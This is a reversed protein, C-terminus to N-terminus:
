NVFTTQGKFTDDNLKNVELNDTCEELLQQITKNNLPHIIQNAIESLPLLAFRRETLYPHPLTLLLTNSVLNDILLIDIDIIRPGYKIERKRGIREEIELLIQMLQQPETNTKLVIVQNYFSPQNTFGWAATEYINSHNIIKGCNKSILQQAQNLYSFRHGLNSGLLLYALAM